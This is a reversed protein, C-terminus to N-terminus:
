SLTLEKRIMIKEVVKRLHNGYTELSFSKVKENAHVSMDKLLKHNNLLEIIVEAIAM